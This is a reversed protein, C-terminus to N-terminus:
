TYLRPDTIAELMDYDVTSHNKFSYHFLVGDPELTARAVMHIRKLDMTYELSQGVQRWDPRKGYQGPRWLYLHEPQSRGHERVTVHEPFLVEIGRESARQGPLLIKLTPLTNDQEVLLRLGNAPDTVELTQNPSAM